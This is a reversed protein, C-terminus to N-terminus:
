FFLRGVIGGHSGDASELGDDPLGLPVSGILWLVSRQLITSPWATSARQMSQWSIKQPIRPNRKMSVGSPGPTSTRTHALPIVCAIARTCRSSIGVTSTGSSPHLELLDLGALGVQDLAAVPRADSDM